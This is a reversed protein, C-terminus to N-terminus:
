CVSCVALMQASIFHIGRVDREISEDHLRGVRALRQEEHVLEAAGEAALKIVNHEDARGERLVSRQIPKCLSVRAHIDADALM